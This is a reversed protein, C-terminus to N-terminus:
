STLSAPDVLVPAGNKEALQVTVRYTPIRWVEAALRQAELESTSTTASYIELPRKGRAYALYKSTDPM